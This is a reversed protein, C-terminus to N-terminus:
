RLTARQVHVSFYKNHVDDSWKRPHPSGPLLMSDRPLAQPTAAKLRPMTVNISSIPSGSGVHFAHAAPSASVSFQWSRGKGFGVIWIVETDDENQIRDRPRNLRVPFPIETVGQTTVHYASWELGSPLARVDRADTKGDKEIWVAEERPDIVLQANASSPEQTRSEHLRQWEHHLALYKKHQEVEALSQKHLESQARTIDPTAVAVVLLMMALKM